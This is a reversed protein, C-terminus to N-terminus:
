FREKKLKSSKLIELQERYKLISFCLDFGFLNFVFMRLLLLLRGLRVPM